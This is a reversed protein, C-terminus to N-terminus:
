HCIFHNRFPLLFQRIMCPTRKILQIRARKKYFYKISLELSIEDTLSKPCRFLSLSSIGFSISQELDTWQHAMKIRLRNTENGTSKTKKKYREGKRSRYNDFTMSSLVMAFLRTLAKMKTATLFSWNWHSVCWSINKKRFIFELNDIVSM